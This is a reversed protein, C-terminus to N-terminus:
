EHQEGPSANETEVDSNKEASIATDSAIDEGGAVSRDELSTNGDRNEDHSEGGSAAEGGSATDAEINTSSNEKESESEALDDFSSDLVVVDDNSINPKEGSEKERDSEDSINASAQDSIKEPDSEPAEDEAADANAPEEVSVENANDQEQQVTDNSEGRTRNVEDILENSIDELREILNCVVDEDNSKYGTEDSNNINDDSVSKSIKHEHSPEDDSENQANIDETSTSSMRELSQRILASHLEDVRKLVIKAETKLKPDPKESDNEEPSLPPPTPLELDFNDQLMVDPQLLSLIDAECDINEFSSEVVNSADTEMQNNDANPHQEDEKPFEVPAISNPEDTVILDDDDSDDLNITTTQPEVIQLDDPSENKSYKQIVNGKQLSKVADQFGMVNMDDMCREQLTRFRGLTFTLLYSLHIHLEKIDDFKDANRYANSSMLVRLKTEIHRCIEIGSFIQKELQTRANGIPTPEYRRPQGVQTPQQTPHQILPQTPQQTMQQQAPQQMIPLEVFGTVVQSQAPGPARAPPLGFSGHPTLATMRNRNRRSQPQTQLQPQPARQPPGTAQRRVHVIKGDPLRITSQKSASNLDIRYGNVVHYIPENVSPPTVVRITRTQAQNLIRRVPPLSSIGPPPLVGGRVDSIRMGSGLDPHVVPECQPVAPPSIPRYGQTADAGFSRSTLYEFLDPTCTLDDEAPAEVDEVHFDGNGRAPIVPMPTPKPTPRPPPMPQSQPKPKVQPPPKPKPKDFLPATNKPLISPPKVAPMPPTEKPEKVEKTGIAKNKQRKSPRESDSEDGIKVVRRRRKSFLSSTPCCISSDHNRADVIADNDKGSDEM